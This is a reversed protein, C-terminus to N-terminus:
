PERRDGSRPRPPLLHTTVSQTVPDPTPIPGCPLVRTTPRRPPRAPTESGVPTADRRRGVAVLRVVYLPVLSETGVWTPVETGTDPQVRRRRPDEPHGGTEISTSSEQVRELRPRPTRRGQEGGTTGGPEMRVPPPPHACGTVVHVDSVSGLPVPLLPRDHTRDPEDPRRPDEGRVSTSASTRGGSRSGSPTTSPGSPGGLTPCPSVEGSLNQTSEKVGPAGVTGRRRPPHNSSLQRPPHHYTM